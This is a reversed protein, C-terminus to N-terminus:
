EHEIHIKPLSWQYRRALYRLVVVVGVTLIINLSEYLNFLSFVYYCLAGILAAVAYIHKRFVNPIKAALIDRVIGGGVGTLVSCFIILFANSTTSKTVQVGIVVFIGLGISDIINMTSSYWKKDTYTYGKFRYCIIFILISTVVAIICSMPSDFLMPHDFGLIIDRIMGGGVATVSGLLIVGLLDMKREVAIMSGSITFAITGIIEAILVFLEM